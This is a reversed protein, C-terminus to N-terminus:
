REPRVPELTYSVRWPGYSSSVVDFRTSGQYSKQGPLVRVRVLGKQGPALLGSHVAATGLHSDSTYVETGWIPGTRLGRLEYQFSKGIDAESFRPAGPDPRIGLVRRVAERLALAEDLKGQRTYRDQLKQLERGAKARAPRLEQEAQEFVERSRAEAKAQVAAEIREFDELVAFAEPPLDQQAYAPLAWTCLMAAALAAASRKASM